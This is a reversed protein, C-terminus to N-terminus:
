PATKPRGQPSDGRLRGRARFLRVRLAPASLGTLRCLWPQSLGRDYHLLVLLRQHAPLERLDLRPDLPEHLGEGHPSEALADCEVAPTAADPATPVAEEREPWAGWVRQRVRRARVHDIAAHRCIRFLWADARDPQRLEGFRAGARMLTEQAVDEAAGQEGVFTRAFAVLRRRWRADGWRRVVPHEEAVGWGSRSGSGLGHEWAFAKRM